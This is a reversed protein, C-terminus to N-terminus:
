DWIAFIGGFNKGWHQPALGHHTRHLIPSIFLRDLFPGYSLRVHSHRLHMGAFNFLFAAANAGLITIFDISDGFPYASLGLVAGSAAARVSV